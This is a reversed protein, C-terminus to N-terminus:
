LTQRNIIQSGFEQELETIAEPNSICEIGRPRNVRKRLKPLQSYERGSKALVANTWYEWEDILDEYFVKIINKPFTSDIIREYNLTERLHEKAWWPIEIQEADPQIMFQVSLYINLVNRRCLNVFVCDDRQKIYEFAYPAEVLHHYLIKVVDNDDFVRDLYVKKALKAHPTAGDEYSDPDIVHERLFDFYYTYASKNRCLPEGCTPKRIDPHAGLSFLLLSSGSRGATLIVIKKKDM